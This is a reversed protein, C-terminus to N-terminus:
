IIIMIEGVVAVIGGGMKFTKTADNIDSSSFFKKTLKRADYVCVFGVAVVIAGILKLIVKGM